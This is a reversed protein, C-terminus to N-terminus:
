GAMRARLTECATLVREPTAPADLKPVLRHDAVAAVADRLALWASIGLMLPPEGVAKSRHITDERNEGAFLRIRMDPPVDRATPIKYTSPAHTRLRGSADWCLEEMTLWGIGQVFGGEIQGIDIAPNISRGADHLVDARLLRYEGTLTDIEAETAAAGYAFYYFPRGRATTRDWWIKPTRYFGTAALSIRNMYALRTVEEFAMVHDGVRVKNDKFVVADPATAFRDALFQTLRNRIRMAADRAAMGNLDTGSSAATPSTNPVKGTSTATIRIRDLDIQFAEAVVQAVKVYLGQGMETGGHNLQVTGDQYVLVLAGAQNLHTATFSIGFKVPTLAIGRKLVPSSRNFGDIAARRARYDSTRELEDILAPLVNDEVTMGYHTVDRVGDGGYLNAKRVDLPDRGLTRAIEDVVHEIAVMGQPGGFGRFATNSVTHTKCRHGHIAAAPLFYGNDSHFMARDIIANSLDPSFGCRGALDMEIGLIRGEADHGVDYRVFFDHRKGTMIMDDDRDLRFKVPRRTKTALIAAVCAIQAPQTEKGGFGGGMRRVEVTVAHDPLGLSRAILHQVESPHQTSSFVLLDGDEGPQAYAIMGELYFHDQGGMLMTGTLRRPAEALAAAVDGTRMTLSPSVFHRKELAEEATLIAPLPAYEVRVLKAAARAQRLTDAAVAAIPQGHFQVLGDALVPDGPFVPGIDIEGPVDAATIVARVGPAALAASVDISVIRAHAHISLHPAVHLTGPLEPIDDIYVAAGAVHKAASDHPVAQGVGGKLPGRDRRIGSGDAM